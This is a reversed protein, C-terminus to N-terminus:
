TRDLMHIGEREKKRKNQNPYCNMASLLSCIPLLTFNNSNHLLYTGLHALM